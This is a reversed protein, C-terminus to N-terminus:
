KLLVLRKKGPAASRSNRAACFIQTGRTRLESHHGAGPMNWENLLGLPGGLDDEVKQLAQWLLRTDGGMRRHRSTPNM